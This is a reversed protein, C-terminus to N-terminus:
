GQRELRKRLAALEYRRGLWFAIIILPVSIAAPAWVIRTPGPKPDPEEAGTAVAGNAIAVLQLYATQGDKDTAKIIVRYTGAADYVHSLDIVGPFQRSILDETKGDGWQVSIAYPGSGGNLIIPWTLRQGPNAGRQAYNSTLTLQTSGGPRFQPDNFTVTVINSDPGPQDFADFVRAVLDNRGSFLDVQLSYSGSPCPASGVFVENSFVKVLLGRPCLGSVTIPSTSFSQGNTPTTITAGRTPPASPIKGEIGISGSQPNEVATQAQAVRDGANLGAFVLLFLLVGSTRGAGRLVTAIDALCIM